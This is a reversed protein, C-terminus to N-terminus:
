RQSPVPVARGRQRTAFMKITVFFMFAFITAGVAVGSISVASSILVLDESPASSPMSTKTVRGDNVIFMEQKIDTFSYGDGGFVLQGLSDVEGEYLSYGPQVTSDDDDDDCPFRLGNGQKNYISFSYSSGELLFMQIAVEDCPITYHGFPEGYSQLQRNQLLHLTNSHNDKTVTGTPVIKWATDQPFKDFNIILTYPLEKPQYVSPSQSPYSSPFSSHSITPVVSLIPTPQVSPLSSPVISPRLSPLQTTPTRTPVMSPTQSPPAHINFSHSASFTFSLGSASFLGEGTNTMAMSYEGTCVKSMGDGFSDYITFTYPREYFIEIIHINESCRTKYEGNSVRAVVSSDTDDKLEWSTEYQDYDVNVTVTVNVKKMTAIEQIFASHHILRNISLATIFVTTTTNLVYVLLLKM